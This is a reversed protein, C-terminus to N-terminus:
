GTNVRYFNGGQDRFLGFGDKDIYGRVTEGNLNRMVTYGSHADTTGRFKTMADYDYKKQMEIPKIGSGHHTSQADHRFQWQPDWALAAGAALFVLILALLGLLHNQPRM